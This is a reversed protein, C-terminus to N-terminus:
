GGLIVDKLGTPSRIVHRSVSTHIAREAIRGCSVTAPFNVNSRGVRRQVFTIGSRGEGKRDTEKPGIRTNDPNLEYEYTKDWWGVTTERGHGPRGIGPLRRIIFSHILERGTRSSGGLTRDRKPGAEKRTWHLPTQGPTAASAGSLDLAHLLLLRLM